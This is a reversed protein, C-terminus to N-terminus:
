ARTLREHKMKISYTSTIEIHVFLSYQFVTSRILYVAKKLVDFTHWSFFWKKLWNNHTFIHQENVIQINKIKVKKLHTETRCM